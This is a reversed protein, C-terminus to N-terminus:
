MLHDLIWLKQKPRFICSWAYCLVLKRMMLGSVHALKCLVKAFHTFRELPCCQMTVQTPPVLEGLIVFYKTVGRVQSVEFERKALAPYCRKLHINKFHQKSAYELLLLLSLMPRWNHSYLPSRIASVSSQPQCRPYVPLLNINSSFKGRQGRDLLRM